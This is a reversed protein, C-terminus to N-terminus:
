LQQILSNQWDCLWRNEISVLKDDSTGDEGNLPHMVIIIANKESLYSLACGVLEAYQDLRPSPILENNCPFEM